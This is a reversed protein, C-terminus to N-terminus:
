LQELDSVKWYESGGNPLPRRIIFPIRNQKLEMEAIISGDIINNPINVFPESGNNIQKARLGLIRAKEYKTLFPLTTHLEDIIEGNKNRVIKAQALVENYSSYKSEPHYALLVDRDLENDLKQFTENDEDESDTEDEDESAVLNTAEETSIVVNEPKIKENVNKEEDNGIDDNEEDEEVDDNEDDTNAIQDREYVMNDNPDNNEIVYNESGIPPRPPVIAINEDGPMDFSDNDLDNDLDSDEEKESLIISENDPSIKKELDTTTIEQLESM